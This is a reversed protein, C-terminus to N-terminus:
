QTVETHRTPGITSLMDFDFESVSSFVYCLATHCSGLCQRSGIGDELHRALRPVPRDITSSVFAQEKLVSGLSVVPLEKAFQLM